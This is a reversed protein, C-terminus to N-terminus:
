AMALTKGNPVALAEQFSNIFQWDKTKEYNNSGDANLIKPGM